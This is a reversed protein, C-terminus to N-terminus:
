LFITGTATFEKLRVRQKGGFEDVANVDMDAPWRYFATWEAAAAIALAAAFGPAIHLPYVKVDSRGLAGAPEGLGAGVAKLGAEHRTWAQFFRERRRHACTQLMALERASFVSAIQEWEPLDRLSEIDIGVEGVRTFAFVAQDDSHAVNFHLARGLRGSAPLQNEALAPKGNPGYALRIDQPECGLYRGLLTRLIGRGMVYRIRDREFHFRSARDTEDGAMLSKRSQLEDTSRPRLSASWLDVDAPGLEFPGSKMAQPQVSGGACPASTTLPRM